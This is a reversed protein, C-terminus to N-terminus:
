KKRPPAPIYSGRISASFDDYSIQQMSNSINNSGILRVHGNRNSDVLETHEESPAGPAFSTIWVDGPKADKLPVVHWGLKRLNAAMPQVGISRSSEPIKGAKHLMASVFNACCEGDPCDKFTVGHAQLWDERKGLYSRAISVTKAGDDPPRIVKKVAKLGLQKRARNTDALNMRYEAPELDKLAQKRDAKVSNKDTAISKADKAIRGDFSSKTTVEKEGLTFLQNLLKATQAPDTPPSQVFQDILTQAETTLKALASKEGAKDSKEAREAKAARANANRLHTLDTHLKRIPHTM